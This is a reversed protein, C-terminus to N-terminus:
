RHASSRRRAEGQRGLSTQASELTIVERLQTLALHILTVNPPLLFDEGTQATPAPLAFCCRRLTSSPSWPSSLHPTPSLRSDSCPGLLVELVFYPSSSMGGNPLNGLATNLDPIASFWPAREHSVKKELQEPGPAGHELVVDFACSVMQLGQCGDLVEEQFM